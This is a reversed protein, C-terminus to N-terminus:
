KGTLVWRLWAAEIATADWGAATLAAWATPAEAGEVSKLGGLFAPFKAADPGFALYEVLSTAVLESDASPAEGYAAKLQLAVGRSKQALAKVKAAHAALKPANGEARLAVADGFGSELWGPLGAEGTTTGAKVNLLAAAVARSAQATSSAETPKGDAGASIVLQPTDGRLDMEVAGNPRPARKFAQLLFIKHAKPDTLIYVALKGAVPDDKAEYKLGKLAATYTKQVEAALKAVREPPYPASVILDATEATVLTVKGAKLNAKVASRQKALADAADDARAAHSLATLSLAVAFATRLTTM